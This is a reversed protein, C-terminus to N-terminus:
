AAGVGHAMELLVLLVQRPRRAALEDVGHWSLQLLVLAAAAIVCRSAPPQVATPQSSQLCDVFAIEVRPRALLVAAIQATSGTSGQRLTAM